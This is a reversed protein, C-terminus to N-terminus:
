CDFVKYERLEEILQANFSDFATTEIPFNDNCSLLSNNLCSIFQCVEILVENNTSFINDHDYTM